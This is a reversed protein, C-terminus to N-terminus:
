APELAEEDFEQELRRRKKGMITGHAGMVIGTLMYALGALGSFSNGGIAVLCISLLAIGCNLACEQVSNLTDFMELRNLELEQRKRYAHLFLLVFVLFVALYGISFILMLSGMQNYEIVNTITGNPLTTQGHGGTFRDVLVSFLFKLPYVYFMVVFLLAANLLVTVGDQLGYRRFFKYQNFWVTFLLVFSIFFAGFGRMTSALENFTKPVELSVVLLTIAFGFVADSLGEIRSAEHGRWRFKSRKGIQKEILKKRM